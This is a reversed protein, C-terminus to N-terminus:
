LERVPRLNRLQDIRQKFQDLGAAYTVNWRKYVSPVSHWDTAPHGLSDPKAAKSTKKTLALLSGRRTQAEAFLGNKNLTRTVDALWGLRSLVRVDGVDQGYALLLRSRWLNTALVYPIAEIIKTSIQDGRLTQALLQELPRFAGPVRANEVELDFIGFHRLELAMDALSQAAPEGTGSIFWQLPVDLSRSLETIQALTPQRRGSEFASIEGQRLKCREALGRQTLGKQRRARIIHRGIEKWELLKALEISASPM